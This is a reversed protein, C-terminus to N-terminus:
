VAHDEFRCLWFGFSLRQAAEFVTALVGLLAASLLVFSRWAPILFSPIM